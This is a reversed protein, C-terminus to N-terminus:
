YKLGLQQNLFLNVFIGDPDIKRRVALFDVFKPYLKKLQKVTVGFEKGWHPRGNFQEMTHHFKKFYKHKVEESPSYLLQTIHCSDRQYNPSLWINDSKVFRVEIIHNVPINDEKIMQLLTKIGAVCDKVDIAIETEPHGDVRHPINFVNPSHDVRTHPPFVVGTGILAKMLYPTSPPIVSMIWQFFNSIHMMFDLLAQPVNDRPEETTRNVEYVACTNSHYEIWYKVHESRTIITPMEALCQEVTKPERVERLNFADECQLTVETVVGLLGISVLGAKFIDTNQDPSVKIIEGTGTVLEFSTVFTALNGFKIGTGHTATAITGAITQASISPLNSLGLGLGDLIGNMEALTTGGRLTVQKKEMDHSVLGHYHYLSMILGDSTAVPSWSHGSGLVRIKLHEDHARKIVAVIEEKSHVVHLDDHNFYLEGNHVLEGPYCM